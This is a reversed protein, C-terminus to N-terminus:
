ATVERLIIGRKKALMLADTNVQHLVEFVRMGPCTQAVEEWYACEQMGPRYANGTPIYSFDAQFRVQRLKVNGPLLMTDRLTVNERIHLDKILGLDQAWLLCKYRDAEKANQFWIGGVKVHGNDDQGQIRGHNQLKGVIQAAVKGRAAVPIDEYRM